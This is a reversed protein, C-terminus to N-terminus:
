VAVTEASLRTKVDVVICHKYGVRQVIRTGNTVVTLKCSNHQRHPQLCKFMFYLIKRSSLSELMHRPVPFPCFAKSLSSFSVSTHERTYQRTNSANSFLSLPNTQIHQHAYMWTIPFFSSWHPYQVANTSFENSIFVIREHCQFIGQQTCSIWISLSLVHLCLRNTADDDIELM